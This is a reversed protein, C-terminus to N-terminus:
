RQSELFDALTEAYNGLDAIHSLDKPAFAAVCRPCLHFRNWAGGSEGALIAPGVNFLITGWDSPPEEKPLTERKHGCSDCTIRTLATHSM